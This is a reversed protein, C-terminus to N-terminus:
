ACRRPRKHLLLARHPHEGGARRPGQGRQHRDQHGPTRDMVEAGTQRVAHALARKMEEGDMPLLLPKNIPHLYMLRYNGNEDVPFLDGKARGM